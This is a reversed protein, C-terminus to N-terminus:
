GSAGRRSAGPLRGGSPRGGSPRGGSSPRDRADEFAKIAGDIASRLDPDEQTAAAVDRAQRLHALAEDRRSEDHAKAVALNYLLRADMPMAAAARELFPVAGAPDEVTLHFYGAARLAAPDDPDRALREEAAVLDAFNDTTLQWWRRKWAPTARYRLVAIAGLLYAASVLDGAHPLVANLEVRLIHFDGIGAPLSLLPYLILGFVLEFQGFTLLLLNRAPTRPRALAWAIAGFGLVLTVLPGAAAIVANEGPSFPPIRAPLVSGWYFAFWFSAVHGGFLWTAVAHGLEHLAVAPPTLVFFALETVLRRDEPTVREDFTAKGATRLRRVVQIAVLAYVVALVNFLSFLAV